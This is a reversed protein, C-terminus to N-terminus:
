ANAGRLRDREEKLRLKELKLKSLVNADPKPRHDEAAIREELDAHRVTLAELRSHLSM